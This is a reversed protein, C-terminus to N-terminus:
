FSLKDRNKEKKKASREEQRQRRCKDRLYDSPDIGAALVAAIEADVSDKQQQGAMKQISERIAKVDAVIEYQTDTRQRVELVEKLLTEIRKLTESISILPDDTKEETSKQLKKNM